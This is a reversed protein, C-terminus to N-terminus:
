ALTTGGDVTWVAGSVYSAAPSALFHAVRAIEDPDGIRLHDAKFARGAMAGDAIAALRAKAAETLVPGPAVANVRIGYPALEVALVRTLAEIGAKSAAYAAKGPTSRQGQVSGINVIAGGRGGDRMRRGALQGLRMTGKLNVDLLTDWHEEDLDLAPASPFIGAANVLIDPFDAGLLDDFARQLGQWDSVDVTATGRASLDDGARKVADADRDLLLLTAGAHALHRSIARGIGSGAGTVIACRGALRACDSLWPSPDPTKSAPSAAPDGEM